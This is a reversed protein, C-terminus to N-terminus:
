AAEKFLINAERLLHKVRSVPIAFSIGAFAGTPAYIATNLGVVEGEINVLPGGSSGKNTAVDTQIMNRYQRDEIVVDMDTNGIIGRTVSQEFGYPSGVALVIDGVEAKASDGLAVSPLTGDADIKLLALDAREDLRVIRSPYSARAPAFLTVTAADGTGVVHSNTVIYGEPSVILGSGSTGSGGAANGNINVVSARVNAIVTGLSESACAVLQLALDGDGAAALVASSEAGSNALRASIAPWVFRAIQLALLGVLVALTYRLLRGMAKFQTRSDTM